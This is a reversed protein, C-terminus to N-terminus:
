FGVLDLPSQFNLTSMASFYLLMANRYCLVPRMERVSLADPAIRTCELPVEPAKELIVLNKGM